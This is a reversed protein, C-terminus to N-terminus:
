TSKEAFGIVSTRSFILKICLRILTFLPDIYVRSLVTLRSSPATEIRGMTNIGNAMHGGCCALYAKKSRDSESKIQQINRPARILLPSCCEINIVPHM